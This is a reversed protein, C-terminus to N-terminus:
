GWIWVQEEVGPQQRLTSDERKSRQLNYERWFRNSVLLSNRSDWPCSCFGFSM